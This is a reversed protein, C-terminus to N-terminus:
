SSKASRILTNVTILMKTKFTYSNLRYKAKFNSINPIATIIQMRLISFVMDAFDLIDETDAATGKVYSGQIQEKMDRDKKIREM